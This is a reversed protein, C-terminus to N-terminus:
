EFKILGSGRELNEIFKRNLRQFEAMKQHIANKEDSSEKAKEPFERHLDEDLAMLEAIIEEQKTQLDNIEEESATDYALKELTQAAEILEDLLSNIKLLVEEANQM